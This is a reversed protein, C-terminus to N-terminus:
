PPGPPPQLAGNASDKSQKTHRKTSATKTTVSKVPSGNPVLVSNTNPLLHNAVQVLTHKRKTEKRSNKESRLMEVIDKDPLHPIEHRLYSKILDTVKPGVCCKKSKCTQIEIEEAPCNDKCKGFGM